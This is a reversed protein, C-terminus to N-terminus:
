KCNGDNKMQLPIQSFRRLGDANTRGTRSTFHEMSPFYCYALGNSYYLGVGVVFLGESIASEGDSGGGTVPTPTSSPTPSPVVQPADPDKCDGGNKMEPPIVSVKRIGDANTRGTLKTFLNMSPFYCYEVGNSYYLGTGVAFLGECLPGSSVPTPTVTPQIVPGENQTSGSSSLYDNLSGAPLLIVPKRRPMAGQHVLKGNEVKYVKSDDETRYYVGPMLGLRLNTYAETIQLYWDPTEEGYYDTFLEATGIVRRAPEIATEEGWDNWSPIIVNRPRHKLVYLWQQMYSQGQNRLVPSATRGPLHTTNFGPQAAMTEPSVMQPFRVVWGWLGENAYPQLYPNSAETTGAAYRVAFRPDKWYRHIEDQPHAAQIDNYVVYLPKYTGSDYWKLHNPRQAMENWIISAETNMDSLRKEASGQGNWLPFGSALAVPIDHPLKDFVKKANQAILGGDNGWGNTNDLLLYDIGARKFLPYQQPIIDGSDYYGLEPKYRTWESWHDPGGSNKQYWYITYWAGVVTDKPLLPNSM